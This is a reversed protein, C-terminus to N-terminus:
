PNALVLPPVSRDAKAVAVNKGLVAKLYNLFEPYVSGFDVPDDPFRQMHEFQRGNVLRVKITLEM